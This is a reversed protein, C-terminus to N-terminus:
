GSEAGRAGKVGDARGEELLRPGLDIWPCHRCGNDCCPRRWLQAATMVWLGTAPDLYFPEGARLAAEHLSVLEAFRPHAPDLRAPHPAWLARPLAAPLDAPPPDASTEPLEDPAKM